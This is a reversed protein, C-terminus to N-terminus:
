ANETAGAAGAGGKAKEDDDVKLPPPCKVAVANKAFYNESVKKLKKSSNAVLRENWICVSAYEKATIVVQDLRKLADNESYINGLVFLRYGPIQEIPNGFLNLTKLETLQAM